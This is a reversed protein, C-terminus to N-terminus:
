PTEPRRVEVSDIYPIWGERDIALYTAMYTKGAELSPIPIADHYYFPVKTVFPFTWTTAWSYVGTVLQQSEPDVIMVFSIWYNEDKPAPWAFSPPYGPRTALTQERVATPLEEIKAVVFGSDRPRGNEDYARVFYSKGSTRDSTVFFHVGSGLVPMATADDVLVFNAKDLCDRGDSADCEYLELGSLRKGTRVIITVPHDRGGMFAVDGGFVCALVQSEGFNLKWRMFFSSQYSLFAGLRIMNEWYFRHALFWARFVLRRM